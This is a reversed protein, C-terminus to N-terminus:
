HAVAAAPVGALLETAPMGTLAAAAAVGGHLTGVLGHGSRTGAGAHFLGGIPSTPGLRTWLQRPVLAPGYSTGESVRIFRESTVPTGVEEYVISSGLGPVVHEAARVMHDRVERKRALYRATPGSAPPVGWWEHHAPALSILQLNTQGPPCLRPNQPDALSGVWVGVANGAPLEGARLEAFAPDQDDSGLVLQTANPYGESALDRDLVLYTVALPLAMEYGQVRRLLRSPVDGPALLRLYTHKLDIASVVAPALVQRLPEPAADTSAARVRVGAVRNREVLVHDVETDLLLEGGNRRVAAALEETIVRSGGQPYGLGDLYNTMLLATALLSVRSPGVGLSGSTWGLLATRLLRSAHLTDLYGGATSTAHRLLDRLRWPLRPLERLGPRTPIQQMQATLATVTALFADVTHTEAPFLGHLRSRFSEVGRPVSVERSPAHLRFMGDPDFDRFEVTVGLPRLAASALAPSTYHLGVDFEYGGHSFASMHGGVVDRAEVVLVRRGALALYAATTLGGPGAGIVIVDYDSM